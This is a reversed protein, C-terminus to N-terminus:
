RYAKAGKRIAIVNRIKRESSSGQNSMAESPQGMGAGANGRAKHQLSYTVASGACFRRM